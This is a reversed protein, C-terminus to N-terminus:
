RFREIEKGKRPGKEGEYDGEGRRKRARANVGEGRGELVRLGAARGREDSVRGTESRGSRWGFKVACLLPLVGLGTMREAMRATKAKAAATRAAGRSAARRAARAGVGTSAAGSACQGCGEFWPQFFRSCSGMVGMVSTDRCSQGREIDAHGMEAAVGVVRESHIEFPKSHTSNLSSRMDQPPQPVRSSCHTADKM